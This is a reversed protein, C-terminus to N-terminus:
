GVQFASLFIIGSLNKAASCIVLYFRSIFRLTAHFFGLRLSVAASSSEFWRGSFTQDKVIDQLLYVSLCVFASSLASSYYVRCCVFVNRLVYLHVFLRILSQMEWDVLLIVARDRLFIAHLGITTDVKTSQWLSLDSPCLESTWCM